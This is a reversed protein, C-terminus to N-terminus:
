WAMAKKRKMGGRKIGFDMGLQARSFFFLFCHSLKTFPIIILLVEGSFIHILMFCPYGAMQHYALYGTLFPLISLVILVYDGPRTLMRVHPIVARRIILLVGAIIVALTLYDAVIDPITVLTIGWREKLIMNHAKLFLTSFILSIHFVFFLVMMTPQTRWGRTGFPLLWYINSRVAERIGSSAHTKYAVRDIRSDLGNMYRVCRVFIGIFFISFSVWAFPGTLFNYM